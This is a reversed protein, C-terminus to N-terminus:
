GGKAQNSRGSIAELTALAARAGERIHSETGGLYLRGFAGFPRVELLNVPSAKEAENAAIYAYGAPHTELIYLTDGGLLMNGHRMRNILMTQYHDVNTIIESSVVRPKLRDSEEQEMHRLINRGCDMVEAQSEDHVELVGFAREVIQMAPRVNNAKLAVDTIRNIAIGPAIEVFLSAQGAIPLYGKATTAVFSALQPQLSDVFTFTRLEISM